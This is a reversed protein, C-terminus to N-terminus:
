CAQEVGRAMLDVKGRERGADLNMRMASAM